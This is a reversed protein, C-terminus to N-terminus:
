YAGEGRVVTQVTRALIVLDLWPSWNHVYFSDLAVREDYTTQNRGSVQWLGTLGPRVRLYIQWQDGYKVAEPRTIPRPGVLSMEGVLVNFLQPLEDLSTKRLFRGILTVRPDHRLKHDREWEARLVPDAALVQDLVADADHRMTRLKWATFERDGRGIRKQGYFVAGRSTCRVLLGLILLLPVWFIGGVSILLLDLSRKMTRQSPRLLSQNLELALHGGLDKAEVWVSAVGTTGPIAMVTPFLPGLTNWLERLQPASAGPMAILLHRMGGAACVHGVEAIPGAIPVGCVEKGIKEPDDDLIVLPRLGRSPWRKLAAVVQQGTTGAGCVVVPAGWWSRRAFLARVLSRAMPILCLCMAWAGVIAARSYDEGSRLFFSGTVLILFAVTTATTLRRLEEAPHPPTLAYSRSTAIFTVVLLPLPWLALLQELQFTGGLLYRLAHAIALSVGLGFLDAVVVVMLMRLPRCVSAESIIQDIVKQNEPSSM